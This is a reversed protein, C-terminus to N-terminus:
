RAPLGALHELVIRAVAAPQEPLLAHGADPLSVVSVREPFRRALRAAGDPAPADHAPQVVLMPASGGHTWEERPTRATARAQALGAWPYWGRMWHEPAQHGPAFFAEHLAEARSSAPALGFLVRFIAHRVPPPPAGEGAALLVLSRVREPHRSAFARAIRNGFAHGVLTVPEGLGEARLVAAVDDAYDFLSARLSPLESGDVGRAQVALARFGAAHLAQALENFDSGSRAFSALLVVAEGGAPGSAYYQVAHGGSDVSRAHGVAPRAPDDRLALHLLGGAVGALVLLAIVLTRM